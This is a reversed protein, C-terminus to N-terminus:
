ECFRLSDSLFDMHHGHKKRSAPGRGEAQPSPWTKMRVRWSGSLASDSQIDARSAPFERSTPHRSHGHFPPTLKSPLTSLTYLRHSSDLCERAVPACVQHANCGQSYPWRLSKRGAIRGTARGFGEFEGARYNEEV